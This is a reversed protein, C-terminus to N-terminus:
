AEYHALIREPTLAYNFVAVQAVDGGIYQATDDLSGLYLDNTNTQITGSVAKTRNLQGDIYIKIQSGDYTCALHRWQGNDVDITSITSQWVGSIFFYCSVKHSNIRMRYSNTKDIVMYASSQNSVKVWAEMTVGSTFNLSPSHPVRITDSVGDFTISNVTESVPPGDAGFTPPGLVSGNNDFGSDDSIILSSEQNLTWYGNPNDELIANLSGYFNQCQPERGPVYSGNRRLWAVCHAPQFTELKRSGSFWNVNSPRSFGTLTQSRAFKAAAQRAAVNIDSKAVGEKADQQYNSFTPIAIATLIGLVVIVVLLEVLTFGTESSLFKPVPM